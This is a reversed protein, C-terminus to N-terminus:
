DIKSSVRQFVFRRPFGVNHGRVMSYVFPGSGRGPCVQSPRRLCHTSSRGPLWGGGANCVGRAAALVHVPQPKFPILCLNKSSFPIFFFVESSILSNADFGNNSSFAM